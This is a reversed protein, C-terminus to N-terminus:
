RETGPIPLPPEQSLTQMVADAAHEISVAKAGMRVLGEAGEGTSLFVLVAHDLRRGRLKLAHLADEPNRMGADVLAVEFRRRQCAQAAATGSTVWEHDLGLQVLAPELRPRVLSRGVVLVRTRGALVASGLADALEDSDIPKTVKWEGFLAEHESLISVVVVPTRRLDEDERLERLVDLGSVGDMLLDLTVADFRGERLREIAEQGSTVLETEVEFPELKAAILEAIALEDDVVLVRKGRIARRPAEGHSGEPEAPLRVTFITGEGPRSTVDISGGQLDVLSKVISLGLGTGSGGDERRSFRDFAEDIEAQSMGRGSDAVALEVGDQVRDITITIRGGEGTYLHANSVLNIMIQRVRAPDALVRPLGPPLDLDLRQDKETVRAAMQAAVERVVESVDFLRPHVEMKGAELRSADLLDNVLDVLRDTSQLIVDVFERERDGLAQSRGLLEVFGKISTLPSRLEHSATAVFDSKIRDLRARESIDRLTWVIGDGEQDGLRSATISLTRDGAEVVAEAGLAEDLDPLPSGAEHANAGLSLTPAIDHARPNLATITGEADCVVLADGLSEITIALKEREAEIRSQAGELREAMTNFATDLERLEQPGSPDVRESLDGAALKQTASVLEDLPRRISGILATILALAGLLALIGAGAATVLASRSDEKAVQRAEARRERQRAILDESAERAVFIAEALRRETAPSRGAAPIRAALRRARREASVRARVLRESRPDTSALSLSQAAVADFARAARRRAARAGAGRERFSTEEIVGAALLRSSSSELEYTRALSDEYDQRAEYLNGIGLAAVLSLVLTLGVLALTLTPALPLRRLVERGGARPESSRGQTDVM